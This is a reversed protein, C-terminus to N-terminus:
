CVKVSYRSHALCHYTSLLPVWPWGLSSFGPCLSGDELSLPALHWTARDAGRLGESATSFEWLESDADSALM